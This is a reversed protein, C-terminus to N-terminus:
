NNEDMTEKRKRARVDSVDLFDIDVNYYASVRGEVLYETLAKVSYEGLQETDVHCTESILGKEVADLINDSIYYGIIKVLGAMNYDILAQRACETVEEDM